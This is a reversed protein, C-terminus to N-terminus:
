GRHAPPSATGDQRAARCTGGPGQPPRVPPHGAPRQCRAPRAPGHRGPHPSGSGACGTGNASGGHSPPERSPGRRALGPALPGRSRVQRPRRSSRVVLPSPGGSAPPSASDGRWTSSWRTTRRRRRWTWCMSWCGSPMATSRSPPPGAAQNTGPRVKGRGAVRRDRPGPPAWAGEGAPPM